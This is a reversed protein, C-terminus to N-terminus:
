ITGDAHQTKRHSYRLTSARSNTIGRVLVSLLGPRATDYLQGAALFLSFLIVCRVVTRTDVHRALAALALLILLGVALILMYSRTVTIIIASFLVIAAGLSHYAVKGRSVVFDSLKFLTFFLILLIGQPLGRVFANDNIWQQMWTFNQESNAPIWFYAAKMAPRYDAVQLGIHVCATAFALYYAITFM